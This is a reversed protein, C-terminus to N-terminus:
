NDLTLNSRSVRNISSSHFKSHNRRPNGRRGAVLDIGPSFYPFSTGASDNSYRFKRLMLDSAIQSWRRRVAM